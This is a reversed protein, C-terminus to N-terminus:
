TNGFVMGGVFAAIFGNGGIMEATLYVLVALSLIAIGQFSDEVWARESATDIFRAGAWGVAVGVLPGLTLQLVGFQIWQGAEPADSAASALTAFLLVAPLALGDNLGSEVNIAQRIRVPVEKDSIVAQGLAADTPALLAALLAAEWFLFSPFLFSAVVTGSIIALPLGFLLMRVPLNHDRRLRSLDMRAADTFLVLILTFEAILHIASHEPNATAIGLGGAGLMFGFLTFVLPATIIAGRLRESVLSYLFFGAAILAFSLLGMMNELNENNIKRCLRLGCQTSIFTPKRQALSRYSDIEDEM